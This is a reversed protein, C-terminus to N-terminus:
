RSITSSFMIIVPLEMRRPTSLLIDRMMATQAHVRLSRRKERGHHSFKESLKCTGFIYFEDGHVATAVRRDDGGVCVPGLRCEAQRFGHSRIKFHPPCPMDHSFEFLILHKNGAQTDPRGNGAKGKARGQRQPVLADARIFIMDRFRLAAHTVAHSSAPPTAHPRAMTQLRPAAIRGHIRPQRMDIENHAEIGLLMHRLKALVAAGGNVLGAIHKEGGHHQPGEHEGIELAPAFSAFEVPHLTKLVLEEVIHRVAEDGKGLIPLDHSGVM